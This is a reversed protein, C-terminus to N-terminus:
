SRSLMDWMFDVDTLHRPQGISVGFGSQCPTSQTSQAVAQCGSNRTDIACRWASLASVCIPFSLYGACEVQISRREQANQFQWIRSRTGTAAWDRWDAPRALPVGTEKWWNTWVQKYSETWSGLYWNELSQANDSDADDSEPEKPKLQLLKAKHEEIFKDLTVLIKPRVGDTTGNASVSARAATHHGTWSLLRESQGFAPM